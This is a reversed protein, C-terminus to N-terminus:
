KLLHPEIAKWLTALQAARALVQGLANTISQMVVRPQKEARTAEAVVDNLLEAADRKEDDTLVGSTLIGEALQQLSAALAPDVQNITTVNNAITQVTGTNVIGLNNGHINIQQVNVRAAPIRLPRPTRPMGVADAIDDAYKDALAGYMEIKRLRMDEHQQLHEFCLNYGQGGPVEIGAVGPKGCQVCPLPVRKPQDDAM